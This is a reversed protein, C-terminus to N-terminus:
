LFLEGGSCLIAIRRNCRPCLFWPRSGGYNCPTRELAIQQTVPQWEKRHERYRYNLLLYDNHCHFQIDGNPKGNRTWRLRGMLGHKLLGQQHMYVINIRKTDEVTTKTNWRCWTGSGKGGM